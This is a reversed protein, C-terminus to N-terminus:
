LVIFRINGKNAVSLVMAIEAVSVGILLLRPAMTALAIQLGDVGSSMTGKSKVRVVGNWKLVGRDPDRRFGKRVNTM